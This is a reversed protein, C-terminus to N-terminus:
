NLIIVTHLKAAKDLDESNPVKNRDLKVGAFFADIPNHEILEKLKTRVFNDDSFNISIKKNIKKGKFYIEQDEIDIFNKWWLNERLTVCVLADNIHAYSAPIEYIKKSKRGIVRFLLIQHSLIFHIPSKLIVRVFPNIFRFLYKM